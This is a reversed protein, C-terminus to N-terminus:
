FVAMALAILQSGDLMSLLLQLRARNRERRAFARCM